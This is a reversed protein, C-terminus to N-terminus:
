MGYYYLTWGDVFYEMVCFAWMNVVIIFTWACLL